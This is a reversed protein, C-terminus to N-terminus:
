RIDDIDGCIWIYTHGGKLTCTSPNWSLVFQRMSISEWASGNTASLTTASATGSSNYYRIGGTVKEGRRTVAIHTIMGDVVTDTKIMVFAFNPSSMMGHSVGWIGSTQDSTLTSEGYAIENIGTPLGGGTEVGTIETVMQELTLTASKGTKSRIANAIATLKDTLAM